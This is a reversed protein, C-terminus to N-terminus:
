ESSKAFALRVVRRIAYVVATNAIATMKRRLTPPATRESAAPAADTIDTYKLAATTYAINAINNM